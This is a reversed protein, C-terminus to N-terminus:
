NKCFSSSRRASVLSDFSEGSFVVTDLCGVVSTDCVGFTIFWVVVGVSSFLPCAFDLLPTDWHYKVPASGFTIERVNEIIKRQLYWWFIAKMRKCISRSAKHIGATFTQLSWLGDPRVSLVMTVPNQGIVDHHSQLCRSRHLCHGLWITHNKIYEVYDWM